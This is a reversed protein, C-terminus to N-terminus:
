PIGAPVQPFRLGQSLSRTTELEYIYMYTYMYIYISVYQIIYTIDGHEYLHEISSVHM